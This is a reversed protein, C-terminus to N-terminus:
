EFQIQFMTYGLRERQVETEGAKFNPYCLMERLTILTIYNSCHQSCYSTLGLTDTSLVISSLKENMHSYQTNLYIVPCIKKM